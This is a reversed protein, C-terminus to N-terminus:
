FLIYRVRCLAIEKSNGDLRCVTVTTDRNYYTGGAGNTYLVTLKDRLLFPRHSM